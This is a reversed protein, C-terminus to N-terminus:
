GSGSCAYLSASTYWYLGFVAMTFNEVMCQLHEPQKLKGIDAIAQLATDYVSELKDGTLQELLQILTQPVLTKPVPTKKRPVETMSHPWETALLVLELMYLLTVPENPRLKLKTLKTNDRIPTYGYFEAEDPTVLAWSAKM